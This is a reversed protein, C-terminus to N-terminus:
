SVGLIDYETDGFLKVKIKISQLRKRLFWLIFGFVSCMIFTAQLMRITLNLKQMKGPHITEEEQNYESDGYRQLQMKQKEKITKETDNYLKMITQNLFSVNVFHYKQQEVYYPTEDDYRGSIVRRYKKPLANWGYYLYADRAIVLKLNYQYLCYNFIIHECIGVDGKQENMYYYDSLSPWQKIANSTKLYKCKSHIIDEFNYFAMAGFCSVVNTFEGNTYILNSRKIGDMYYFWIRDNSDNVVITALSDRLYGTRGIGNVCMVSVDLQKSKYLATLIRQIDLAYVDLDIPAYYDFDMNLAITENLLYNRYASYEDLRSQPIYESDPDKDPKLLKKTTMLSNTVCHIIKILIQSGNISYKQHIIM